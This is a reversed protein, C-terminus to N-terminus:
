ALSVPNKHNAQSDSVLYQRSAVSHSDHFSDIHRKPVQDNLYTVQLMSASCQTSGDRHNSSLSNVGGPKWNPSSNRRRSLCRCCWNGM